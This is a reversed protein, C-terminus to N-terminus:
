YRLETWLNDSENLLAEKHEKANNNNVTTYAIVNDNVSLLDNVMASYTYEHMLPTLPDFTRDLILVQGRERETHGEDGHYWWTPNRGRFTTLATNM